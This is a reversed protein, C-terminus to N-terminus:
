SSLCLRAMSPPKDVSDLFVSKHGQGNRNPEPKASDEQTQAQFPALHLVARARNLFAIPKDAVQSKAAQANKWFEIILLVAFMMQKM